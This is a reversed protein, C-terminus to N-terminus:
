EPKEPHTMVWAVAAALGGWVAVMSVVMMIVAPSSM